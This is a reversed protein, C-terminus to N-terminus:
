CTEENNTLFQISYKCKGQLDIAKSFLFLRCLSLEAPNSILKPIINPSMPVEGNYTNLAITPFLTIEASRTSPPRDHIKQIKVKCVVTFYTQITSLASLLPSPPINEKYVNTLLLAFHNIKGAM